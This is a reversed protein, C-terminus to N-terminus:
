FTCVMALDALHVFTAFGDVTLDCLELKAVAWSSWGVYAGIGCGVVVDLECDM